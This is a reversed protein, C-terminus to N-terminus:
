VCSAGGDKDGYVDTQVVDTQLGSTESLVAIPKAEKKRTFVSFCWVGLASMIDLLALALILKVALPALLYSIQKWAFLCSAACSIAGFAKGCMYLPLYAGYRKNNFLLFFGMIPFLAQSPLFAYRSVFALTPAAEDDLARILFIIAAFRLAEYILLPVGSLRMKHKDKM